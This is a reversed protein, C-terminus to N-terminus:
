VVAVRDVFDGVMREIDAADYDVTAVHYSRELWVHEVEGGYVAALHESQAPEVTHDQRSTILLLPVSIESYRDVLPAVGDHQLSLLPRLPTGDYGNESAEPDALINALQQLHGPRLLHSIDRIAEATLLRIGEPDVRLFRHDGLVVTEVFDKTLLRYPTTDAGLPLLDTYTFEAM